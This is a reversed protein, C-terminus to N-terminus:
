QARLATWQAPSLNCYSYNANTISQGNAVFSPLKGFQALSIVTPQGQIYAPTKPTRLSYDWKLANVVEDLSKANPEVASKSSSRGCGATLLAAFLLCTAIKNM